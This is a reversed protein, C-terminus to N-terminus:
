KQNRLLVSKPKYFMRIDWWLSAWWIRRASVKMSLEKSFRIVQPETFDVFFGLIKELHDSLWIRWVTCSFFYSWLYNSALYIRGYWYTSFIRFDKLIYFWTAIQMLSRSMFLGAVQKSLFLLSFLCIPRLLHKLSLFLNLKSPKSSM